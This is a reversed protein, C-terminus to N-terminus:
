TRNIRVAGETYNDVTNEGEALSKLRGLAELFRKEYMNMVDPEGKMYVYSELLSGYLLANVANTALWTTGSDAGATISAPRYFYHLEVSYDSDPTPGVIFSTDDFM